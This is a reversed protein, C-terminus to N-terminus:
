KMVKEVPKFEVAYAKPKHASQHGNVAAQTKFARGCESCSFAPKKQKPESKTLKPEQKILKKGSVLGALFVAGDPALAWSAATVWRMWPIEIVYFSIYAAATVLLPSLAMIGFMAVNAWTERKQGTLSAIQSGAYAVSFSVCAGIVGGVFVGTLGMLIYGAHGIQIAQALAAIYPIAAPDFKRM